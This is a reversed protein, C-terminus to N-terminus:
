SLRPELSGAVESAKSQLYYVWTFPCAEIMAQSFATSTLQAAHRSRRNRTPSCSDTEPGALRELVLGLAALHSLDAM